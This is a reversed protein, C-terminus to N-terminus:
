PSKPLVFGFREIKEIAPVHTVETSGALALAILTGLARIITNM